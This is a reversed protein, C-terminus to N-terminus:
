CACKLAAAQGQDKELERRGSSMAQATGEGTMGTGSSLLPEEIFFMQYYRSITKVTLNTLPTRIDSFFSECFCKSIM